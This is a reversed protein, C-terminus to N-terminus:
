TEPTTAHDSSMKIPWAAALQGFLINLLWALVGSVYVSSGLRLEEYDQEYDEGLSWSVDVIM